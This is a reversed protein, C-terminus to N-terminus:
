AVKTQVYVLVFAVEGHTMTNVVTMGEYAYDGASVDSPDDDVFKEIRSDRARADIQALASTPLRNVDDDRRMTQIVVAFGVRNAGVNVFDSKIPGSSCLRAARMMQSVPVRSWDFQSSDDASMLEISPAFHIRGGTATEENTLNRLRSAVNMHRKRKPKDAAVSEAFADAKKKSKFGYMARHSWGYWKGERPCFGISAVSLSPDRRQPVIGKNALFAAMAWDGIFSGDLAYASEIRTPAGNPATPPALWEEVRKVYTPLREESLVRRHIEDPGNDIWVFNARRLYTQLDM